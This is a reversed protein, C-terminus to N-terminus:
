RNESVDRRVKGAGTRDILKLANLARMHIPLHPAESMVKLRSIYWGRKELVFPPFDGESACELRRAYALFDDSCYWIRIESLSDAEVNGRAGVTRSRISDPAQDTQPIEPQM